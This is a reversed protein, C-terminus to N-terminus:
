ISQKTNNRDLVLSLCEVLHRTAHSAQDIDKIVLQISEYLSKLEQRVEIGKSLYQDFYSMREAKTRLNPANEGYQTALYKRTTDLVIDLMDHYRTAKLALEVLRSRARVDKLIAEGIRDAGPTTGHLNPMTRGSHLRHVETHLEEFDMKGIINKLIRRYKLFTDDGKLTARLEVAGVQRRGEKKKAM